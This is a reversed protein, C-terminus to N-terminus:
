DTHTATALNRELSNEVQAIAWDLEASPIDDIGEPYMTDFTIQQLPTCQSLLSHLVVRAQLNAAKMVKSIPDNYPQDKGM